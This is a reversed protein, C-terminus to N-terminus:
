LSRCTWSCPGGSRPRSVPPSIKESPRRRASSPSTTVELDALLKLQQRGHDFPAEHGVAAEMRRVGPSIETNEIDLEVDAPFQGHHCRACLYYPRSITVEGVATLVPKSRLEQYGAQHGCPCRIVRQEAAPAPFQLLESLATAGAHHLASRLAM